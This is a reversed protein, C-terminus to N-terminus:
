AAGSEVLAKLRDLTRVVARQNNEYANLAYLGPPFLATSDDFTETVVTTTADIPELEYRWRHKYFHCWAIRRDQEFEVVENGIRYPVKLHMSMGFRSGMTLRSPGSVPELVTGSGDFDPHRRPDTLLDFIAAAPADITIRASRRWRSGSEVVEAGMGGVRPPRDTAADRAGCRVPASGVPRYRCMASAALVSM